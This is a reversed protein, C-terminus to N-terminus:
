MDKTLSCCLRLPKISDTMRIIQAGDLSKTDELMGDHCIEVACAWGNLPAQSRAKQRFTGRSESSIHALLSPEPSVERIRLSAQVKATAYAILVLNAQRPGNISQFYESFTDSKINSKTDIIAARKLMKWYEKVNNKRSVILKETKLKDYEFRKRRIIHKFNKRAQSLKNQNEANRNLRFNDLEIYFQKRM